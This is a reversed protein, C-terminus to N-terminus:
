WIRMQLVCSRISTQRRYVQKMQATLILTRRVIFFEDENSYGHGTFYFFLEAPANANDVAARVKAKLDNADANEIIEITEYKETADLLERMAAVDAKCCDLKTLSRYDTNGVLIALNPM